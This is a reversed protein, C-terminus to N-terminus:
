IKILQFLGIGIPSLAQDTNLRGYWLFQTLTPPQFAAVWTGITIPGFKLGEDLEHAQSVPGAKILQCPVNNNSKNHRPPGDTRQFM